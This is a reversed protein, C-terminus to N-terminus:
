VTKKMREHEIQENIYCDIEKKYIPFKLVADAIIHFFTYDHGGVRLSLNKVDDGCVPNGLVWVECVEGFENIIFEFPDLGMIYFDEVYKKFKFNIM